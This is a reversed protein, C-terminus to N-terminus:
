NETSIGGGQIAASLGHLECDSDNLADTIEYRISRFTGGEELEIWRSLYRTSGLVSSDLTFVNSAAPGLVDSAGQTVTATQTTQGDRVWSFTVANANKPALNIGVAYITKEIQEVGYDLFPTHVRMTYASGNNTRTAQDLKYVYGDYGGAFLRVRNSTDVVPALSAAGYADWLAWRPYPEGLTQFRFDLHLLKLNNTQGSPSIALLVYGSDLDTATWWYRYRNQNVNQQLWRNIVFSLTARSYDGFEQTAVLSHVTGRPSIFGLDNPLPFIANQWAAGIGSIFPVLTFTSPSEGQLRHISCKNPGKFIFLENKFSYLGTIMDGDSPNVDISGSTAGVWDEPNLNVSYYLRSPNTVDGAGWARNKHTVTFAFNAPSGALSQFTTGDYSKPVDASADNCLILLDDFTNYHPVAGSQLGTGIDAFVGDADDAKVTTGVHIVRRQEPTGTTGQRWYDYLGMIAAGSELASANLQVTGPMKHIGGDLEYIVNRAEALFPVTVAGSQSPAMHVVPGFDTAWGGSLQHQIWQTGTQGM